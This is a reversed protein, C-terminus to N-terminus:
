KVTGTFYNIKLKDLAIQRGTLEKSHNVTYKKAIGPLLILLLIIIATLVILTWFIIKKIM